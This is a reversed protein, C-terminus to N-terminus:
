KVGSGVDAQQRDRREEPERQERRQDRDRPRAQQEGRLRGPGSAPRRQQRRGPVPQPHRQRDVQETRRRQQDQVDRRHAVLVVEGRARASRSRRRSSTSAAGALARGRTARERPEVPHQRRRRDDRAQQEAEGAVELVEFAVVGGEEAGQLLIEADAPQCTVGDPRSAAPLRRLRAPRAGRVDARLDRAALAARETAAPMAGSWCPRGCDSRRRRRHHRPGSRRGDVVGRRDYGPHQAFAEALLGTAPKRCTCADEARHYCIHSSLIVGGASTAELVVAAHVAQLEARTTKGKAWAPQNSAIAIGFGARTLDRLVGPVWDFVVVEAPRLPSDPRPEAPNDVLANLVGDRDLVILAKAAGVTRLGGSRAPSGIEYFRQAVELGALAGRVSLANFLTALDAGAGPAIEDAIVRRELASLGYDIYTFDAAPRAQRQKDYLTVMRGDFIVNSTDWRGDNRFVTMLAPQGCATFAQFVAAFDIPCSRIATPSWSRNRWRARTSRWACRGRPAACTRARTSSASACGTARATARRHARIADGRYGVCLVVDTVGHGALWALQHDVFPRGDIPILAKPITDTLPRMRTARGGALIVCQM